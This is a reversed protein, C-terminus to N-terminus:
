VLQELPAWLEGMVNEADTKPTGFFYLIKGSKQIEYVDFVRTIYPYIRSIMEETDSNRQGKRGQKM